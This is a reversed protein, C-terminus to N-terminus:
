SGQAAVAAEAGVQKLQGAEQASIGNSTEFAYQFSDPNVVSSERLSTAASETGPQYFRQQPQVFVNQPQYYPNRAAFPKITPLLACNAAAVLTVLIVAKFQFNLLVFM